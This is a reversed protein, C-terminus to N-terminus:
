SNFIKVSNIEILHFVRILASNKKLYLFAAYFLTSGAKEKAQFMEHSDPSSHMLDIASASLSLHNTATRFYKTFNM